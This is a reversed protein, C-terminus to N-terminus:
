RNEEEYGLAKGCWGCRTLEFWFQGETKEERKRKKGSQEKETLKYEYDHWYCLCVSRWQVNTANSALRSRALFFSTVNVFGIWATSETWHVSSARPLNGQTYHFRFAWVLKLRLLLDSININHNIDLALDTSASTRWRKTALRVHLSILGHCSIRKGDRSQLSWHIIKAKEFDKNLTM